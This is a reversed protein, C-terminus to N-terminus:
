KSISKKRLRLVSAEKTYDELRDLEIWKLDTSEESVKLEIDDDAEFLFRIDYHDHEPFGNRAPIRHIDVDFISITSFQFALVGTEEQAERLAVNFINEEGDAHGGPQLWRLLTGHHVM